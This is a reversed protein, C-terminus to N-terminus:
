MKQLKRNKAQVNEQLKIFKDLLNLQVIRNIHKELFTGSYDSKVIGKVTLDLWKPPIYDPRQLKSWLSSCLNDDFFLRESIWAEYYKDIQKGLYNLDSFSEASFLSNWFHASFIHYWVLEEFYSHKFRYRGDSELIIGDSTLDKLIESDCDDCNVDLAENM